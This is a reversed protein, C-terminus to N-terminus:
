KGKRIAARGFQEFRLVRDPDEDKSFSALLSQGEMPQIKKDGFEEPYKAGSFYATL